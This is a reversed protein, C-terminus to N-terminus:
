KGLEALKGAIQSARQLDGLSQYEAEAQALQLVAQDKNGAAAYVNGLGAQAAATGEADGVRKALDLADGYRQEALALLGVQQYLDGLARYVNPSQSGTNVLGGLMGISEAYLNHGAYLQALAFTKAEDSLGLAHIAQADTRVRGAEAESLLSFGLGPLGEDKSSKGNDAEVILLYGTGSTLPPNGPYVFQTANLTDQWDTGSIRITYRKAGPVPNWRLAPRPDLLKTARPSVVYPILPDTSGRTNGIVSEARMLAPEPAQHCGNNLGSPPGGPVVWATLNDCLVTASARESLRLQDGRELAAGFSTAHFDSWAKRKLEVRGEAAILLNVGSGEGPSALTANPQSTACAVGGLVLCMLACFLTTFRM